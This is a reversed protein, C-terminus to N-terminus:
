KRDRKALCLTLFVAAAAVPFVAPCRISVVVAGISVLCAVAMAAGAGLPTLVGTLMKLLNRLSEMTM